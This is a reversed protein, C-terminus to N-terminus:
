GNAKVGTRRRPDLKRLDGGTLKPFLKIWAVFGASGVVFIAVEGKPALVVGGGDGSAVLGGFVILLTGFLLTGTLHIWHYVSNRKKAITM